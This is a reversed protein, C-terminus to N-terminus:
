RRFPRAVGRAARLGRRVVRGAVRTPETLRWSQSGRMEIVERQVNELAVDVEGLRTRLAHERAALWASESRAVELSYEAAVWERRDGSPRRLEDTTIPRARSRLLAIDQRPRDGGNRSISVVEFARGWHERLWWESHFVLPGGASWPQWHRLVVMGTRDSDWPLSSYVPWHGAGLTTVVFLGGPKLVRHIEALWDAWSDALHTFVSLAYVLDFCGEPRDMPPLEDTVFVEFPPALHARLWDISPVDIDCGHFETRVSADHHSAETMFHHLTRGAGCGFDLVRKGAWSWDSPLVREITLRSSRGLAEYGAPDDVKGVRQMLDAPPLPLNM